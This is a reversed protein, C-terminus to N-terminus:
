KIGHAFKVQRVIERIEKINDEAAPTLFPRAKMGSTTHWKGSDDKYSWPIKKAKSNTAFKGTGKEVYIAYEVPTGIAVSKKKKNIRWDISGSLNGGGVEATPVLRTARDELFMGVAELAKIQWKELAKKTAPINSEYGM